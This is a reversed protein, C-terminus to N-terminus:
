AAGSKKYSGFELSELVEQSLKAIRQRPPYPARSPPILSPISAVKKEGLLQRRIELGLVEAMASPVANGLQKQVASIGGLVEFDDPFTQIRSMERMSLRRNRWHFPGIASGPQAQITWSPRNKALKLLMSWYRSRWKFIPIGGGRETHWLYNEGEPISPLLAGWRGGVKLVDEHSIPDLDGIADWATRYPPLTFLSGQGSDGAPDAFRPKPFEFAVGDRSGVLFVRERIQPVGYKATNLVKWGFSYNVGNRANIENITDRLFVMGEDKGEYTLGFVNELLFAKPLAEELIRMYEGLTSARPDDLRKTDGRAWYASKSFPQCPPGGALLDAEGRDLGAVKMLEAGSVTHIDRDIVPWKRNHRLTRVCGRDMEVCVRTEFGAAELGLDLGGAGSFLSILSRRGLRQKGAAKRALNVGSPLSIWYIYAM